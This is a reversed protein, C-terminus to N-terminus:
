ESINLKKNNLFLAIIKESILYLMCIDVDQFKPDKLGGVKYFLSFDFIQIILKQKWLIIGFSSNYPPM